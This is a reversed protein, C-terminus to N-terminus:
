MQRSVLVLVEIGIGIKSMAMLRVATLDCRLDHPKHLPFPVNPGGSVVQQVVLVRHPAVPADDLGHEHGVLKRPERGHQPQRGFLVREARRGLELHVHFDLPERVADFPLQEARQDPRGALRKVHGLQQFHQLFGFERHLLVLGEVELGDDLDVFLGDVTVIQVDSREM